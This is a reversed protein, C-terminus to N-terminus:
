LNYYGQKQYEPAPEYTADQHEAIAETKFYYTLKIISSSLMCDYQVYTRFIIIIIIYCM